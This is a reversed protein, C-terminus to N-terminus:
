TKVEKKFKLLRKFSGNFALPCYWRRQCKMNDCPYKFNTFSMCRETGEIEGIIDNLLKDFRQKLTKV